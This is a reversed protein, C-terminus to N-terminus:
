SNNTTPRRKAGLWRYFRQTKQSLPKKEKLPLWPHFGEEAFFTSKEKNQKEKGQAQPKDIQILELTHGHKVSGDHIGSVM